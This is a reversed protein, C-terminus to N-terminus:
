FVGYKEYARLPAMGQRVADRVKNESDLLAECEILVDLALAKPVVAIGDWDGAIVDGPHVRVDGITVPRGWEIARWRPLSDLPTRYRCFVPFRERAIYAADRTAGDIIAGRVGRAKMAVASLEGFHAAVDDNSQIVLVADRPVAGLMALFARIAVETETNRSPKGSVPFAIGALRTEPRLPVIDHPLAQNYYGRKDLVDTIAATYIRGYRACLERMSVRGRSRRGSRPTAM